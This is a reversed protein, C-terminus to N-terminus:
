KDGDGKIQPLASAEGPTLLGVQSYVRLKDRTDTIDLNRMTLQGIRDRPSFTSAVKEMSLREPQYTLNPSKTSLISYDNGRRLEIKVEGTIARAVWRQATERLMIAQPDFWRGQYLLRGLRRGNERYQEITDENHIGTVLREYAIYLLALGPAEYIGRSKAEIIRNEIQDSMGLGHRGGIRNAELLLEVQDNFEVGNLAVPQGAEFRVTVEEAAIKVDDRWFAVGMIPNVIKIGSELSELDKAEHTAGLLNSDTSYAKEASMKYAFGAQNMFESMEARGGLEDIFTQDLWPKYIKLDPNVLLGYRYFREIDNGKYTSGDGWINVGDEKMAAVLMTGTVARGIPTTNFYTVGATTIHFAGSQLAAIGEAVLQARCDILRAGAAGYEIARKPIADYDDEDPQGLNATYAYPVAGKLKMWHLAASTDLGGSFAIGVKQGTPLSELITSM